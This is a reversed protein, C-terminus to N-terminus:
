PSGGITLTGSSAAAVMEITRADSALSGDPNKKTYDVSVDMVLLIAKGSPVLVMQNAAWWPRAIEVTTGPVWSVRDLEITLARYKMSTVNGSTDKKLDLIISAQTYVYNTLFETWIRTMWQAPASLDCSGFTGAIAGTGTVSLQYTKDGLKSADAVVTQFWGQMPIGELSGTPGCETVWTSAKPNMCVGGSCTADPVPVALWYDRCSPDDQCPVQCRGDICVALDATEQIHRCDPHEACEANSLTFELTVSVCNGIASGWGACAVAVESPIDFAVDSPIESEADDPPTQEDPTIEAGPDEASDELGPSEESAVVDEQPSPTEAADAQGGSDSAACGWSALLVFGM